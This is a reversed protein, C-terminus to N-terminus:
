RKGMAMIIIIVGVEEVARVGGERATRRRKRCDVRVKGFPDVERVAVGVGILDHYWSRFCGVKKM